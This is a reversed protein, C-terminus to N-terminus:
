QTKKDEIELRNKEEELQKFQKLKNQALRQKEKYEQNYQEANFEYIETPKNFSM